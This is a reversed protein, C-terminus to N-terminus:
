GRVLERALTCGKGAIGGAVVRGNATITFEVVIRGGGLAPGADRLARAYCKRGASIPAKIVRRVRYARTRALRDAFVRSLARRGREDLTAGVIRKGRGELPFVAIRPLPTGSATGPRELDGLLRDSGRGQPM